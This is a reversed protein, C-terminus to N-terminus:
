SLMGSGSPLPFDYMEDLASSTIKFLKVTARVNSIIHSSSFFLQQDVPSTASWPGFEADHQPSPLAASIEM